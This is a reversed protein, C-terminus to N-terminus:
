LKSLSARNKTSNSTTGTKGFQSGVSAGSSAGNILNSVDMITIIILNIFLLYPPM